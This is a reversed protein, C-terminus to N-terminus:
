QGRTVQEQGSALLSCGSASQNGAGSVKIVTIQKIYM